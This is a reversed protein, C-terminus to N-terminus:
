SWFEETIIQAATEEDMGYDLAARELILLSDQRDLFGEDCLLARAWCRARFVVLRDAPKPNDDRPPSTINSM